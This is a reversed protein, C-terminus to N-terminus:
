RFVVKKYMVYNWCLSVFTAIAKAFNKILFQDHGQIGMVHALDLCVNVPYLWVETLFHITASQLIYLGFATVAYFLLAQRAVSGDHKKFVLKKNAAFSFVMAVTTSIINAEVLSLRFGSSLLNYIVFDLLTNAAGVAGFKGVRKM